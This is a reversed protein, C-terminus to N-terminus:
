GQEKHSARSVDAVAQRLSERLTEGFMMDYDTKFQRMVGELLQENQMKIADQLWLSLEAKMRPMIMQHLSEILVSEGVVAVPKGATEAPSAAVLPAAVAAAHEPEAAPAPLEDHVPAGAEVEPLAPAEAVAQMMADSPVEGSVAAWDGFAPEVVPAPEAQEPTTSEFPLTSLDFGPQEIVAAMPELVPVEFAAPESVASVLAVPDPETIAPLVEAQEAVMMPEVAAAPMEVQQPVATVPEASKLEVGGPGIGTAARLAALRKEISALMDSNDLAALGGGLVNRPLAEIPIAQSIAQPVSQPALWPPTEAVPAAPEVPAAEVVAQVAPNIPAAVAPEIVPPAWAATAVEAPTALMPPEDGLVPLDDFPLPTAARAPDDEGYLQFDLPIDLELLPLEDMVLPATPAGAPTASVAPAASAVPEPALDTLVPVDTENWNEVASLPATM